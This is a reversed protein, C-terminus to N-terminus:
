LENIMHYFENLLDMLEDKYEQLLNKSPKDVVLGLMLGRLIKIDMRVDDVMHRLAISTDSIGFESVYRSM